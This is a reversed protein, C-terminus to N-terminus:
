QPGDAAAIQDVTGSIARLPASVHVTEDPDDVDVVISGGEKAVRVREDREKVEVLVVDDAERLADLATDVVPLWPRLQHSADELKSAPIFHAAIPGLVAPAIVNIHHGDAQKQVVKVQVFGESCLVGAGAFVIGTMGLAIKGLLIM